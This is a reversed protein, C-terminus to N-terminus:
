FGKIRLIKICQEPDLRYKTHGEFFHHDRVLHIHLDSFFLEDGTDTNTVHYDASGKTNGSELGMLELKDTCGFPCDQWGFTANKTISLNRYTTIETASSAKIVNELEEAIRSYDVGLRKITEKDVKYVEMLKEGVALFGGDSSKGPIMNEELNEINVSNEEYIEEVTLYKMIVPKNGRSIQRLREEKLAQAKEKNPIVM